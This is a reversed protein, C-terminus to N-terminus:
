RKKKKRREKRKRFEGKKKGRCAMSNETGTVRDFISRDREYEMFRTVCSLIVPFLAVTQFPVAVFLFSFFKGCVKEAIRERPGSGTM